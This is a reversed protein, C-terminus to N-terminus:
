EPSMLDDPSASPLPADPSRPNVELARIAAALWRAAHGKLANERAMNPHPMNLNDLLHDMQHAALDCERACRERMYEAGKQYTMKLQVNKDYPEDQGRIWQPLEMYMKRSSKLQETIWSAMIM